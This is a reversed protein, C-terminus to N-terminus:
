IPHSLQQRDRPGYLANRHVDWKPNPLGRVPLLPYLTWFTQMDSTDESIWMM